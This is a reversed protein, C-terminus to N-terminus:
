DRAYINATKNGRRHSVTTTTTTTHSFVNRANLITAVRALALSSVPKACLVVLVHLIEVLSLSWALTTQKCPIKATWHIWLADVTDRTMEQKAQVTDHKKWRAFAHKDCARPYLNCPIQEYVCNQMCFCRDMTPVPAQRRGSVALSDADLKYCFARTRHSLVIKIRNLHSHTAHNIFKRATRAQTTRCFALLPPPPLELTDQEPDFFESQFDNIWLAIM